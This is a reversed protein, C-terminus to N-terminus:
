MEGAAIQEDTHECVVFLVRKSLVSVSMEVDCVLVFVNKQPSSPLTEPM